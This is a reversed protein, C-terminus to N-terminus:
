RTLSPRAADLLGRGSDPPVGDPLTATGLNIDGVFALRVPAYLRASPSPTPELLPSPPPASPTPGNRPPVRSRSRRPRTKACALAALLVLWRLGVSVRREGEVLAPATEKLRRLSSERGM